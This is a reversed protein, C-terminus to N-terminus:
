MMLVLATGNRKCRLWERHLYDDFFRRNSIQTLGDVQAHHSLRTNLAVIQRGLWVIIGIGLLGGLAYSVMLSIGSIPIVPFSISIAGQVDGETYGQQAHCALCSKDTILPAIYRFLLGSGQRHFAFYEKQKEDMFAKLAAQEWAAASNKPNIPNLSTIHFQLYHKTAALEGIMRTMYAPNIKTLVMGDDTKLDRDPVKLYPNAQVSDDVVLYLGGHKANWERTVVIQQFIARATQLKEVTDSKKLQAFTWAFSLVTGLFWFLALFAMYHRTDPKMTM